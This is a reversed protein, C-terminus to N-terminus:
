SQIQIQLNLKIKFLDDEQYVIMIDQYDNSPYRFRTSGFLYEDLKQQDTKYFTLTKGDKQLIRCGIFKENSDYWDKTPKIGLALLRLFKTFKIQYFNSTGVPYKMPNRKVIKSIIEKCSFISTWYSTKLIEALLQPLGDDVLLLNQYFQQNGFSFFRLSVNRKKLFQIKKQVQRKEHIKNFKEVDEPEIGNIQYILNTEKSSPLLTALDDRCDISNLQTSM